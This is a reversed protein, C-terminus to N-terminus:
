EVEEIKEVEEKKSSLREQRAKEIEANLLDGNDIKGINVGEAKLEEKVLLIDQQTKVLELMEEQPIDSMENMKNFTQFTKVNVEMLEVIMAIIETLVKQFVMNPNELAEDIEEQSEPLEIDTLVKLFESIVVNSPLNINIKESTIDSHVLLVASLKETADEDPDFITIKQPNDNEDTFKIVKRVGTKKLSGLKVGM